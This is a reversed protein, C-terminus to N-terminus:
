MMIIDTDHLQHLTGFKSVPYLVMLRVIANRDSSWRTPVSQLLALPPLTVPNDEADRFANSQNGSVITQRLATRRGGSARCATVLKKTCAVPNTMLGQHYLIHGSSASNGLAPPSPLTDLFGRVALNIVHPFCSFCHM